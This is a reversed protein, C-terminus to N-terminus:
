PHCSSCQWLSWPLCPHNRSTQSVAFLEQPTLKKHKEYYIELSHSMNSDPRKKRSRIKTIDWVKALEWERGRGTVKEHRSGEWEWEGQGTKGKIWELKTIFIKKGSKGKRNSKSFFRLQETTRYNKGYWGLLGIYQRRLRLVYYIRRKKVTFL